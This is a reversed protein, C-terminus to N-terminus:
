SWHGILDYTITRSPRVSWGDRRHWRVVTGDALRASARGLPPEGWLTAVLPREHEPTDGLGRMVHEAPYTVVLSGRRQM